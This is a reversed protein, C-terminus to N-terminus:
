EIEVCADGLIPEDIGFMLANSADSGVTFVDDGLTFIVDSLVLYGGPKLVRFAEVLFRARTQFHHAAEVCVVHDFTADPFELQAADMLLLRADPAREAARDLQDAGINIATIQDAAFHRGLRKTTGGAGCGVDAVAAGSGPRPSHVASGIPHGASHPPIGADTLGM